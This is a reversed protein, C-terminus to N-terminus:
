SNIPHPKSKKEIAVVVREAIEALKKNEDMAQKQLRRYAENESLQWQQMLILKARDIFKHEAIARKADELERSMDKIHKAQGQLLDYFSRHASLGKNKVGLPTHDDDQGEHMGYLGPMTPDFLMTLPSGDPANEEFMKELLKQHNKMENQANNVSELAVELLSQTLANEIARMADIRKTAVEFWVESLESSIPRGDALQRIMTRLRDIDQNMSSSGLLAWAKEQSPPTFECFLSFHHSQAQQLAEMKDCILNDFHSEAFGIAGWAREQGAFEKGQMFNFLAVLLRTIQPHSAIDAAEFIVTLLGAVLRCYAQTSDLPSLTLDQIQSRLIPLHDVGQLALTISSLLRPNANTGSSNLYLSKLQSRFTEEALTSSEIQQARQEGFREGKSALYINSSGRERQLEHVMDKVAIVIRCNSALQELVSIEARKASLLFRKTTDSCNKM